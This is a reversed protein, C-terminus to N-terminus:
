IKERLLREVVRNDAAGRMKAMGKGMLCNLAKEQGNRFDEVPQPNESLVGDVVKSLEEEGSVKSLGEKKVIKKPSEATDIVRELLKKGVAETIKESEVLDLLESLIDPNLKSERLEINRFNLQGLVERCIWVSLLETEIDGALSEFLDAIDKDRVMTNAFDERVGYKEVLRKRRTNPTEPLRLGELYPGEFHQPPIDPDPIYRYDAATEKVRQAKTVMTKEDFGRTEQVVKV